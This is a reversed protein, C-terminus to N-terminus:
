RNGLIKVIRPIQKKLLSGSRVLRVAWSPDLEDRLSYEHELMRVTPPGPDELRPMVVVVSRSSSATTTPYGRCVVFEGDEVITMLREFPFRAVSAEM